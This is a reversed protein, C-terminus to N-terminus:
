GLIPKGDYSYTLLKNTIASQLRDSPLKNIVSALGSPMNALYFQKTLELLQDYAKKFETPVNSGFGQMKTRMYSEFDSIRKFLEQKKAPNNKLVKLLEPLAKTFEKIDITIKEIKTGAAIAGGKTYDIAKGAQTRLSVLNKPLTALADPLTALSTIMYAIELGMVFEEGLTEKAEKNYITLPI